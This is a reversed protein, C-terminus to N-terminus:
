WPVGNAETPTEEEDLVASLNAELTKVGEEGLSDQVWGICDSELLDEYPIFGPDSPEAQYSQTGYAYTEYLDGSVEANPRSASLNWHVTFVVGNSIERDLTGVSWTYTDAM